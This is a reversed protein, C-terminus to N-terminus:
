QFSRYHSYGACHKLEHERVDKPPYPQTYIVCDPYIYRACGWLTGGQFAQNIGCERYLESPTNVAIWHVYVAPPRSPTKEWEGGNTLLDVSACGSLTLVAAATLAILLLRRNRDKRQKDLLPHAYVWDPKDQSMVQLVLPHVDPLRKYISIVAKDVLTIEGSYLKKYMVRKAAPRLFQQL